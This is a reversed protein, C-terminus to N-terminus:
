FRRARTSRAPIGFFHRIRSTLSPHGRAENGRGMEALEVKARTRGASTTNPNHLAAKLGGARRDPDKRGFLGGSRGSRRTTSTGYGTGRGGRVTVRSKQSRPGVGRM